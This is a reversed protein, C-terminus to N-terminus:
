AWIRRAQHAQRGCCVQCRFRYAYGQLVTRRHQLVSRYGRGSRKCGRGYGSRPGLGGYGIDYAWGDGGFIWISKKVLLDKNALVERGLLARKAPASRATQAMSRGSQTGTLDPDVSAELEAVLKAAAKKSGEADDMNELWEKGAAKLDADCYDVAILKEVLRRM